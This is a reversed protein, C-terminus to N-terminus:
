KMVLRRGFYILQVVFFPLFLLGFLQGYTDPSAAYWVVGIVIPLIAVALLLGFWRWRSERLSSLLGFTFLDWFAAVFVADIIFAFAMFALLGFALMSGATKREMARNWQSGLWMWIHQVAPKSLRKTTPTAAMPTGSPPIFAERDPRSEIADITRHVVRGTDAGMADVWQVTLLFGTLATEQLKIPIITRKTVMALQIERQVWESQWSDPTLILLFIERSQLEKEIVSIWAAGASLGKEDYWVDLGAQQLLPVFQRCWANDRHSHSVFV